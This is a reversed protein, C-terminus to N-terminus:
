AAKDSKIYAAELGLFRILTIGPSRRRLLVDSLFQPSVGAEEALERQSRKGQRARLMDLVEDESYARIAM